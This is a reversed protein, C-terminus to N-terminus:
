ITRFNEYKARIPRGSIRHDSYLEWTASNSSVHPALRVLKMEQGRTNPICEGFSIIKSSKVFNSDRIEATAVAVNGPHSSAERLFPPM